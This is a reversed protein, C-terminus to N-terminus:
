KLEFTKNYIKEYLEIKHRNEKSNIFALNLEKIKPDDLTLSYFPQKNNIRKGRFGFRLQIEGTKWRCDDIFVAISRNDKTYGYIKDKNISVLEGSIYRPDTKDIHHINGQKDRVTLQNFTLPKLEGSLYRPDNKYVTFINGNVDKVPIRGKSVHEYEGSLYKPDNKDIKFTNGNKDKVVIKNKPKISGKNISILEGSLYQPDDKSVNLIDGQKNKVVVYGKRHFQLEGSLFRSDNKNVQFINGDKDKVIVKGKSLAKLEGSKLRPDDKDIYFHNNHNDVACLKNVCQMNSGGDGGITLNYSNEDNVISETILEKERKYMSEDNDFYELIEKKFNEKGYKKIAKRILIGSGMYSDNINNTSHVGYYYKGNLLNTIKYLYHFKKGM